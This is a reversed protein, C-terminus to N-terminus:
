PAGNTWVIEGDSQMQLSIQIKGDAQAGTLEFSTLLYAGAFYGDITTGDIVIRVNKPEASLMWTRWFAFKEEAMLGSGSVGSSLSRIVREIWAAADPDDCDPVTTDSTEASLTFGKTVLGCVASTFDEPSADDGPWISLKTWSLTQPKAM